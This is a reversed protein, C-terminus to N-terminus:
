YKSPKPMRRRESVSILTEKLKRALKSISIQIATMRTNPSRFEGTADEFLDGEGEGGDGEGEGGERRYGM